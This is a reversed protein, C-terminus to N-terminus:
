ISITLRIVDRFSILYALGISYTQSYGTYLTGRQVNYTHRIVDDFPFMKRTVSWKHPSNVPGRHIGRVFALSASSQPKRQDPGSHVTSYVITLSTIQSAMAGMIVDCYYTCAIRHPIWPIRARLTMTKINVDHRLVENRMVPFKHSFNVPWRYIGMVFSLYHPAKINARILQRFLTVNVDMQSTMINISYLKKTKWTTYTVAVNGYTKRVIRHM